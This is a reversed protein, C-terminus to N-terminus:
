EDDNMVMNEVQVLIDADVEAVQIKDIPKQGATDRIVEFAKTDGKLAKKFQQFAIYEAGSKTEGKSDTIDKELLIDMARKLDRKQRRAEVSARGGKSAEEVTLVHAQPILNKSSKKGM